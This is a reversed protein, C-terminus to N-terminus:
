VTIKDTVEEFKSHGTAMAHARAEKDGRLLTKCAVCHVTLTNVNTYQHSAKAEQAIEMAMQLPADDSSPFITQLVDNLELVLPDYHIGDYILFVRNAYNEREGFRHVALSFTDIAVIEMKLHESLISLEIAGGWNSPDTIWHCYEDNRMGLFATTYREPNKTVERAIIRRMENSRSVDLKGNSLIFDISTFLCSNNAPVERRMMIGSQPAILESASVNRRTNGQDAAVPEKQIEIIVTDFSHINIDDLRSSKAEVTVAKPPYGCYIKMEEPNVKVIKSLSNKLDEVTSSETLDELIFTGHVTQCKIVFNHTEM